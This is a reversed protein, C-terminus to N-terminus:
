VPKPKMKPAFTIITIKIQKDVSCMSIRLFENFHTRANWISNSNPLTLTKLALPFNSYRFFFTEYCLLSGVVLEVWMHRQHWSKFGPWMTPLHTSEGSHWGGPEGFFLTSTFYHHVDNIVRQRLFLTLQARHLTPWQHLRIFRAHFFHCCNYLPPCEAYKIIRQM